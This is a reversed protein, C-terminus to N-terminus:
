KRYYVANEKSFESRPMILKIAWSPVVPKEKPDEVILFAAPYEPAAKPYTGNGDTLYLIGRFDRFEQTKLREEVYEFVPRFDTGGFGKVDLEQMYRDFEEQSTIKVASHVKSDCQLIHLNMQDRFCGTDKIMTYTKNLFSRVVQGQCSGSTDIAIVFDHIKSTERYELPEILPLNGYLRMGYTYYIYDFEEQNIKLEEQRSVFKKLFERYDYKERFVAKINDVASGPLTEKYRSFAEVNLQISKGAQKWQEMATNNRGDLDKRNSQRQKGIIHFVSVWLAHDDLHFLPATKLHQKAEAKHEMYWAYLNEATLIEVKPRMEEIYRRKGADEPLRMEEWGLELMTNEVAVDSALDWLEFDMKDYQFPHFFLCHFIMHMYTRPLRAPNEQHAQLVFDPDLFVTRGDTAVYRATPAEELDDVEEKTEFFALPMRLIARNLFPMRAILSDQAFAVIKEATREKRKKLQDNMTPESIKSPNFSKPNFSKPNFSKPNDSKPPKLFCAHSRQAGAMSCFNPNRPASSMWCM